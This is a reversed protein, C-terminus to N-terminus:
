ILVTQINKVAGRVFGSPVETLFPMDEDHWYSTADAMVESICNNNTM